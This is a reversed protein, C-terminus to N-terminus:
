RSGSAPSRLSFFEHQLRLIAERSLVQFLRDIVMGGDAALRGLEPYEASLEDQISERLRGVESHMWDVAERGRRIPMASASGKGVGSGDPRTQFLWGLGYPRQTLRDPDLRLHSNVATIREVRPFTLPIDVGNVQFVVAPEALGHTTLFSINEVGGMLRALFADIGIHNIGDEGESIWFHNPMFGLWAPVPIGLCEQISADSATQPAAPIGTEPSSIALSFECFRSASTGCRTLSEESYPIFKTQPSASCFQVLSEELYPCHDGAPYEEQTQIFSPCQLYRPSTCRENETRLLGRPILKRLPSIRCHKVQSERLHPCRM